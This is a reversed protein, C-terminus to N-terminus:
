GRTVERLRAIAAPNNAKMQRMARAIRRRLLFQRVKIVLKNM